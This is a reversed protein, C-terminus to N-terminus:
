KSALLLSYVEDFPYTGALHENDNLWDSLNSVEVPSIVGDSVIGHLIGELQQIQSTIIDFYLDEQNIDTFKHCLWLINNAEEIDLIGDQFSLKIAPLIDSFPFVKLLHEHLSYWNYLENGEAEDITNDAVIGTLIGILSNLSKHMEEKKMFRRYDRLEKM